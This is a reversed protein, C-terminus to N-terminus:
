EKESMFYAIITYAVGALIVRFLWNILMESTSHAHENMEIFAHLSYAATVALLAWGVLSTPKFFLGKRVFWHM